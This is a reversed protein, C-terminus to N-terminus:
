LSNAGSNDTFSTHYSWVLKITRLIVGGVRSKRTFLTAIRITGLILFVASPLISLITEEFLLTFDFTRACEDVAPGFVDDMAKPCSWKSSNSDANSAM